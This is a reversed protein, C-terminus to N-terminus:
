RVKLLANYHSIDMPTDNLGKILRICRETIESRSKRDLDVLVEGCCKIILLAQNSSCVRTKEILNFIQM